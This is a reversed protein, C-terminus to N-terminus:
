PHSVPGKTLLFLSGPTPQPHLFSKRPLLFSYLSKLKATFMELDAQRGVMCFAAILDTVRSPRSACSQGKLFCLRHPLKWRAMEACVIWLVSLLCTVLDQSGALDQMQAPNWLHHEKHCVLYPYGLTSLAGWIQKPTREGPLPRNYLETKGLCQPPFSHHSSLSQKPIVLLGQHYWPTM